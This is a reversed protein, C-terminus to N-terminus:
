VAPTVGGDFSNIYNTFGVIADNVKAVQEAFEKEDKIAELLQARSLDNLDPINAFTDSDALEKVAETVEKAAALRKDGGLGLLREVVDIAQPAYSIVLFAVKSWGIGFPM